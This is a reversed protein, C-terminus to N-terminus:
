EIEEETKSEDFESIFLNEQYYAQGIVRMLEEISMGTVPNYAALYNRFEGATFVEADIRIETYDGESAEYNVKLAAEENRGPAAMVAYYYNEGSKFASIAEMRRLPKDATIMAIQLGHTFSGPGIKGTHELQLEGEGSIKFAAAGARSESKSYIEIIGDAELMMDRTSAVAAQGLIFVLAIILIAAATKRM